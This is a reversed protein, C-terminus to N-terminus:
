SGNPGGPILGASWMAAELPALAARTLEGAPAPGAPLGPPRYAPRTLSPYGGAPTVGVAVAADPLGAGCQLPSLGPLPRCSALILQFLQDVRSAGHIAPSRRAEGRFQPHHALILGAAAAVHAAAVATGGLPGYSAPPLGSVIAVGPACCDIGPGHNAFRPVFLGDPTPPGTLGAAIGSEPPFSGLQGIASVALVGPVAAPWGIPGGGDGAAAVCAIGHERAQRVKAALLGSDQTIGASLLVVDAEAEICYDLAEILDACTGGPAVRCIHVEAEPVLGVVGSGDDRGAILVAQHTGTGIADERWSKDDEGVVDRGDAIRGVLDPHEAAAGSDVIAIRIGDGRHTPPLRDFGMARAGWSDLAREPFDPFTTIVRECVVSVPRGAPLRPRVVRAPWCGRAPRVLLLDAAAATEAPAALEVRGDAGTFGIAPLGRGVLCVAADPVPRGGDDAVAVAVPIVEGAPAALSAALGGPGAAPAGWGLRQDPEVLVAPTRALAAAREATTEIVIIPPYGGAPRPPGISRVVRTQPDSNLHAVLPGAQGPGTVAVLYRESRSGTGAPRVRATGGPNKAGRTTEAPAGPERGPRGRAGGPSKGPTAGPMKDPAPM